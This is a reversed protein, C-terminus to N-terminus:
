GEVRIKANFRPRQGENGGGRKVCIGYTVERSVIVTKGPIELTVLPRDGVYRDMWTGIIENGAAAVVGDVQPVDACALPGALEVEIRGGEGGPVGRAVHKADGAGVAGVDQEVVVAVEGLPRKRGKVDGGGDPGGARVVRQRAPRLEFEGVVALVDQDACLIVVMQEQIGEVGAELAEEPLRFAGGAAGRRALAAVTARVLVAAAAAAASRRGRLGPELAAALAAEGGVAPVHQAAGLLVHEDPVRHLGEAAM